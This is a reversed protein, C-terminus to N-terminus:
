KAEACRTLYRRVSDFNVLVRGRQNGRKRLRVFQIEGDQELEYATSRPISFITRLAAFNGFEAQAASETASTVASSTEPSRGTPQSPTQM